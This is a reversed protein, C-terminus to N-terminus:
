AAVWGGTRSQTAWPLRLHNGKYEIAEGNVLGKVDLVAQRLEAVSVPKGNTVRVASDGRRTHITRTGPSVSPLQRRMSARLYLLFVGPRSNLTSVPLHSIYWRSFSLTKSPQIPPRRCPRGGTM